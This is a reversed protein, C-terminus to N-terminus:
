GCGRGHAGDVVVVVVRGSGVADALQVVLAGNVYGAVGLSIEVGIDGRVEFLGNRLDGVVEVGVGVGVDQAFVLKGDEVVEAVAKFAVKRFTGNVSVPSTRVCGVLLKLRTAALFTVTLEGM